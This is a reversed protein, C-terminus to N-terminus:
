TAAAKRLQTRTGRRAMTGSLKALVVAVVLSGGYFAQSVWGSFGVIELGAIGFVLFYVAIFTGWVNFRGPVIATAGLFVAALAPFLLSPGTSPDVSGNIGALLVGDLAALFSSTILALARLRGVRIGSLRAAEKGAGAFFLRRGLPTHSLLYWMLISLVLVVWFSVQFGLIQKNILNTLDESVGGIPSSSIGLAFGTLLTGVGLTTVICDIGMGVVLTANFVGVALGGAVVVIAVVIIPWGLIVNLYGTVVLALGTLAAVSLDLDGVVIPPISALAVLVLPAQTNFLTQFNTRTPYESPKLLSFVLIVLLWAFILAFRNWERLLKPRKM